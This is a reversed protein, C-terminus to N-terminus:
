TPCVKRAPEEVVGIQGDGVHGERRAKAAHALEVAGADIDKPDGRPLKASTAAIGVAQHGVAPEQQAQRELPRQGPARDGAVQM